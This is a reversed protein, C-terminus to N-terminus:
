PVCAGDEVIIDGLNIGMRFEIRRDPPIGANRTAM